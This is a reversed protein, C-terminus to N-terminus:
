GVVGRGHCCRAIYQVVVLVSCVTGDVDVYLGYLDALMASRANARWNRVM